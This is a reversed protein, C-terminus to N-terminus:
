QRLRLADDAVETEMKTLSALCVQQLWAYKNCGLMHNERPELKQM